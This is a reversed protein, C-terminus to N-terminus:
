CVTVCGRLRTLRRRSTSALSGYLVALRPWRTTNVKKAGQKETEVTAYGGKIQVKLRGSSRRRDGAVGYRTRAALYKRVDVVRTM